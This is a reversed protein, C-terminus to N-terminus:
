RGPAVVHMGAATGAEALRRDYVLMTEAGITLASALHIADLTRLARSAMRAATRLVDATVDILYCAEVVTKAEAAAENTRPAAIAVARTVEVLAIRSTALELRSGALHAHLADTEPECIVLKALASSDAYVLAADTAM